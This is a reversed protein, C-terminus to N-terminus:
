RKAPKTSLQYGPALVRRLVDASMPEYGWYEAKFDERHTIFLGIRLAARYSLDSMLWGAGPFLRQEAAARADKEMQVFIWGLNVTEALEGEARVWNGTAKDIWLRATAKTFVKGTRNRPEYGPRPSAKLVYCLHGGRVEEGTFKFLFADAIEELTERFQARKKYFAATRKQREDASERQRIGIVKRLFEQQAAMEPGSVAVGNEELLMRQPSGEIMLVDHIKTTSKKVQDASDLEKSVVRERFSYGLERREAAKELELARRVLATADIQGFASIGWAVAGILVFVRHM